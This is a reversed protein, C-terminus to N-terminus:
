PIRETGEAVKTGFRIYMIFIERLLIGHRNFLGNAEFSVGEVIATLADYDRM